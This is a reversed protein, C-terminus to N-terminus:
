PSRSSSPTSDNTFVEPLVPRCTRVGQVCSPPYSSALAQARSSAPRTPRPSARLLRRDVDALGLSALPDVDVDQLVGAAVVGYRGVDKPGHRARRDRGRQVPLLQRGVQVGGRECRLRDKPAQGPLLAVRHRAQELRSPSSPSPGTLCPTWGLQGHDRSGRMVSQSHRRGRKPPNTCIRRGPGPRHDSHRNPSLSASVHRQLPRRPEQRIGSDTRPEGGIRARGLLPPRPAKVNRMRERIHRRLDPEWSRVSGTRVM